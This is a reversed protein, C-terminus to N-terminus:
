SLSPMKRLIYVTLWTISTEHSYTIAGYKCSLTVGCYWSRLCMYVYTYVYIDLRCSIVFMALTIGVDITVLPRRNTRLFFNKLIACWVIKCSFEVFCVHCFRCSYYVNQCLCAFVTSYQASIYDAVANLCRRWFSYFDPHWQLREVIVDPIQSILLKSINLDTYVSRVPSNDDLV